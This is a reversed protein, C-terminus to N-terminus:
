PTKIDNFKNISLIEIGHYVSLMFSLCVNLDSLAYKSRLRNISAISWFWAILLALRVPYLSPILFSFNNIWLLDNVSIIEKSIFIVEKSVFIVEKSVFIIEKSNLVFFDSAQM